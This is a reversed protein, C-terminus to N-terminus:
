AEVRKKSSSAKDMDALDQRVLSAARPNKHAFIINMEELTRGRTEVMFFYYYVAQLTCTGIWICHTRWGIKELAIPTAFLNVMSAAGTSMSAFAVGKARQEYGLTEVTYLQQLPTYAVSFVVAVLFIFFISSTAAPKNSQNISFQETSVVLGVWALTLCVCCSILMKRRGARDMFSAGTTAAIGSAVSIGINIDMIQPTSTIGMTQLVGPLFYSVAGQGTWQAFVPVAVACLLVRYLAPRSNFLCRYDWWRKDAGDIELQEEFESMQLRVYASDPNGGGHYKVLVERCQESKGHTFLWRPSEPFFACCCMVISPLAIQLWTPILWAKTSEYKLCGRLVVAALFSGVYYFCNFLGAMTGRHVPHAMEAIYAAAIGAVGSGFGIFFRGALYQPLAHSTGQIITGMIISLCGLIIGVRRGWTDAIPGIFPLACVSGISFMASILGAKVGIIAAGFQTQFSPLALLTGMLSADYGLITAGLFMVICIAWLQATTKSFLAVPEQKQAVQLAATGRLTSQGEAAPTRGELQSVSAGDKEAVSMISPSVSQTM